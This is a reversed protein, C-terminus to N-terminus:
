AAKSKQVDQAASMISLFDDAKLSAGGVLAGNVNDISLIDFANSPKVSGGYLIRINSGSELKEQCQDRIIKHMDEIDQVSASKGTGIAWVPEYAITFNHHNLNTHFVANLQRSVVENHEGQERQSLTEGVCYIVHLDHAHAQEIKQGLLIENENYDARRESHGLIVFHCGSDKLMSASVDGTHAGNEFSSCDQGGISFDYKSTGSIQSIHSIHIFSPCLCVDVDAFHAAGQAIEQGLELAQQITCNMKWNGAILHKM